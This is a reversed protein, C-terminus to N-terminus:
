KTWFTLVIDSSDLSLTTLYKYPNSDFHYWGWVDVHLIQIWHNKSWLSICAHPNPGLVHIIIKNVRASPSLNMINWIFICELQGFSYVDEWGWSLLNHCLKSQFVLRVPDGIVRPTKYDLASLNDLKKGWKRAVGRMEVLWRWNQSRESFPITNKNTQKNQPHSPSPFLIM